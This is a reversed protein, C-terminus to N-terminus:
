PVLDPALELLLGVPLGIVNSLDGAIAAVLTAGLGQIAYGGARERWEGSRLYRELDPPALPKFGVRSRTVGSREEGAGPGALFLGSLVEHQRGSLRELYRRAEPEDAPKGLLEGDLLVETDCGITLAGAEAVDIAKRRANEIVVEVPDGATLEEVEPLAIEFEVGLRRLIESRQPSRSALIVRM